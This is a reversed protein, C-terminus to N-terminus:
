KTFIVNCNAGYMLLSPFTRFLIADLKQVARALFRWRDSFAKMPYGLFNFVQVECSSFPEAMKRLQSLYLNSEDGEEGAAMRIARIAAVLWNHGLPEFIFILRGAPKLVRLAEQCLDGTSHSLHHLAAQGWLLDVSAPELFSLDFASSKQYSLNSLEKLWARNDPYDPVYLDTGIVRCRPEAQALRAALEGHGGCIEVALGGGLDKWRMAEYGALFVKEDSPPYRIFGSGMLGLGPGHKQPSPHLVQFKVGWYHISM